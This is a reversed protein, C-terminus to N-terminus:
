TAVPAITPLEVQRSTPSTEDDTDTPVDQEQEEEITEQTARDLMHRLGIDVVTLWQSLEDVTRALEVHTAEHSEMIASFDLPRISPGTMESPPTPFSQSRGHSISRSHSQSYFASSDSTGVRGDSFSNNMQSSLSSLSTTSSSAASNTHPMNRAGNSGTDSPLFGSPIPSPLIRPPLSVSPSPPLESPGTRHDLVQPPMKLGNKLVPLPARFSSGESGGRGERNRMWPKTPPVPAKHVNEMVAVSALRNLSPKRVLNNGVSISTSSDQAGSEAAAASLARGIPSPLAAPSPMRRPLPSADLSQTMQHTGSSTSSISSVSARTPSIRNRRFLLDPTPLPPPTGLKEDVFPNSIAPFRFGSSSPPTVDRRTFYSPSSTGGTASSQSRKRTITSRSVAVPREPSSSSLIIPPTSMDVAMDLGDRLRTPIEIDALGRTTRVERYNPTSRTTAPTANRPSSNGLQPPRGSPIGPGLPPLRELDDERSESTQTSLKSKSRPTSTRPPFVFDSQKATEPIEGEADASGSAKFASRGRTPSSPVSYLGPFSPLQLDTQSADFGPIRFPDPAAGEEEFLARLTAPVKSPLIPRVTPHSSSPDDDPNELGSSEADLHGVGLSPRVRVTDFEWPHEDETDAAPQSDREEEEEWPLPDAMSARTGGGKTWADYRLILDKLTTVPVKSVSKIWKTRTLDDASLRDSPAERLCHSVFERLEKSGEGEILRPPKMRPIMQILKVQDVVHSNPASGKIMEYIMIGLSWIDAKTDYASAHAVEPAMWHPTGVLTNRKSSATVLLASVGFDCIMVKGAATILINAAKLDRHIISSKHLYSLGMLVERTIVSVYKEEVVGDKCAKMLTRVSGGQAYEMVIWVRPGDLYCGYYQTVNPADRLQTLLAVERQIDGVDDDETDLNIIKLAVVNGTPIHIGKHVSGYAGKGVTELRRYLQHVSPQLM